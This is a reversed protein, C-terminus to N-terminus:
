ISITIHQCHFSATQLIIQLNGCLIKQAVTDEHTQQIHTYTHIIQVNESFVFGSRLQLFLSLPRVFGFETDVGAMWM